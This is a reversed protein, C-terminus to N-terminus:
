FSQRLNDFFKTAPDVIPGGHALQKLYSRCADLHRGELAYRDGLDGYGNLITLETAAAQDMHYESEELWGRDLCLYGLMNHAKGEFNDAGIAELLDFVMPPLRSIASDAYDNRESGILLQNRPLDPAREVARQLATIAALQYLSRTNPTLEAPIWCVLREAADEKSDYWEPAGAAQQMRLVGIYYHLVANDPELREAGDLMAVADELDGSQLYASALALYRWVEGEPPMPMDGWADIAEEVRGDRQLQLIAWLQANATALADSEPRSDLERLPGGLPAAIQDMNNPLLGPVPGMVDDGHAQSVLMLALAAALAVAVLWQLTEVERHMHRQGLM